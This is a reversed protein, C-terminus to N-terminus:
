RAVVPWDAGSLPPAPKRAVATFDMAASFYEPHRQIADLRAILDDLTADDAIGASRLLPRAQQLLRGPGTIEGPEDGPAPRDRATRIFTAACLEVEVLGAARFLAFLTRGLLLDPFGHPRARRALDLLAALAEGDPYLARAGWDPEVALAVGGIEAVRFMEAVVVLPDPQHMLLCRCAVLDFARPPYPLHAADAREFRLRGAAVNGALAARAHALLREDRDTALVTAQPLAALLARTLVGGGCGLELVRADPPVPHLALAARLEALAGAAQADLRQAEAPDDAGIYPNSNPSTM